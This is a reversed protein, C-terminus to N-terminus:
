NECSDAARIKLNKGCLIPVNEHLPLQRGRRRYGTHNPASNRSIPPPTCTHSRHRINKPFIKVFRRKIKLHVCLRREFKGLGWFVTLRSRKSHSDVSARAKIGCVYYLIINSTHRAELRIYGFDIDLIM